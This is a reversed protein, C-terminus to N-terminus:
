LGPPPQSPSADSPAAAPAPEEQELEPKGMGLGPPEDVALVQAPNIYVTGGYASQLAVLRADSSLASVVESLPSAISFLEGGALKVQTAM